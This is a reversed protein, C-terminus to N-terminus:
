EAEEKRAKGCRPCTRLNEEWGENEARKRSGDNGRKLKQKKGREKRRRKEENKSEM